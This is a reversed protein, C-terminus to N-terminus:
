SPAASAAAAASATPPGRTGDPCGPTGQTSRMVRAVMAAAVREEIVGYSRFRTVCPVRKAETPSCLLHWGGGASHVLTKPNEQLASLRWAIAVPIQSVRGHVWITDTLRPPQEFTGDYVQARRLLEARDLYCVENTVNDVYVVVEDLRPDDFSVPPPTIKHFYGLLAGRVSEVSAWYEDRPLDQTSIEPLPAPGIM